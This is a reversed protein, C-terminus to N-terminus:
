SSIKNLSVIPCCEANSAEGVFVVARHSLSALSHLHSLNDRSNNGKRAERMRTSRQGNGTREKQVTVCTPKNVCREELISKAKMKM